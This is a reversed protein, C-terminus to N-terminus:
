VIAHDTTQFCKVDLINKVTFAHSLVLNRLSDSETDHVAWAEKKELRGLLFAQVLSM